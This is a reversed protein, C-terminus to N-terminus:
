RYQRTQAHMTRELAERQQAERSLITQIVRDAERRNMQSHKVQMELSNRQDLRQYTDQVADGFASRTLVSHMQRQVDDDEVELAVFERLNNFVNDCLDKWVVPLNDVPLRLSTAKEELDKFAM